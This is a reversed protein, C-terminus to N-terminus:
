FVLKLGIQINRPLNNQSTVKSFNSSTPDTNPDGFQPHNFANLFEGRLQMRIKETISFNKILSLDWLSLPQRRFGDIRSPFTRINNVLRIRQDARQKAPDVVGNTQVAADTFYFGSTDFTGDVTNGTIRASLKKPDGNFYVNRDSLDIPRGSQYQYIGQFQWGGILTNVIANSDAGFQRGRGFPLEWIGSVVVRHPIDSDAIRREYHPDSENLFTVEEETHSWTYSTLLTFGNIFRREVRFQGAHYIAKGDDRRTRVRLFHPFPRLLQQRQVTTGNLTTGPILGQFPNTVLSTLFNNTADDRVPSQSLYQRPIANIVVNDNSANGTTIDYARNGIYAAEVVWHGPLERQVSIEWRQTQANSRDVPTLDLDRGLFTALGLSPGPPEAVGTPFPNFLNGCTPCAPAFTLGANLTPVINTAQSFGTQNVGDIVFPATYIGIGGRVVTKDNIQYACGFRPMINNKDSKWFGRNSADAFLLGGNVQFVDVGVEPIPNMAYKARAAAEIPNNSATDFGRVNRNYRETTAGELEYRMGLNLTLKRTVKWDDHFFVGNYLTQNSRTANRDIIGGSPLGLLFSAFEQGIVAATSNDLPGRTFATSFDYRGAAHGSPTSNERYSRFDWGMKFSHSGVLKTLTPQVVYINHTRIDGLSDGIPTFPANADDSAIRFRPLYMAGGFFKASEASFGLTAPDIAGEHQRANQELFRSFGVRADLIMTPSFTYVHDYSFGNNRRTLFNGTPIIGNVGGTWANRAEVRNNHTYRFFLKQKDSINQDFRYSESHFRDTRPNGSIFNNRGQSDGPQNPLPYYQLYAKAIPSILNDPIKNNAFPERRIRSGEQRATFPNFIQFSSNIALLASFDGNREALTPVTDLRPEPFVDRLGEYAFFFFSRNRGDYLKPIWIPGGVTGGFRNYRLADRDAKGDHDKDRAPNAALNTRNLFFDNASLVDNRIFEYLSGHFDNSGSRLAVNVVAGAGHGQQADFSATEVKFEQVADAPPIFAVRNSSSGNDDTNPVGDLTFEHGGVRPVGDAIFDSSGNNDFPRSFKLDGIYGIGPALRVLTFPNGDSLPLESIRRRDIVQGASATGADLLPAGSAVNVAEQVAGVELQLDLTLKDAVRVEIDDKLLRRFGQAEVAVSHKGSALYSVSYNGAEDSTVATTTNMAVNTVTVRAGAVAAGNSDTVRGSISGRFEQGAAPVVALQLCVMGVLVCRLSNEIYRRRMKM